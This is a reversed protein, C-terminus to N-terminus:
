VFPYFPELPFQLHAPPIRFNEAILNDIIKRRKLFNNVHNQTDTIEKSNLVMQDGIKENM